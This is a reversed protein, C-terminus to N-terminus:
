RYLVCAYWVGDAGRSVGIQTPTRQGWYCCQEIARQPSSSSWGVGECAAGGLSGGIHGRVRGSAARQAKYQALGSSSAGRYTSAVPRPSSYVVPSPTSPVASYTRVPTALPRAVASTFTGVPLSNVSAVPAGYTAYTQVPTSTATVTSSELPPYVASTFTGTPVINTVPQSHYVPVSAHPQPVYDAYTQTTAVSDSPNSVAFPSPAAACSACGQTYTGFTQQASTASTVGAFAILIAFFSLKISM